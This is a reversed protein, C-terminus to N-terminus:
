SDILAELAEYSPITESGIVGGSDTKIATGATQANQILRRYHENKDHISLSTTTVHLEAINIYFHSKESVQNPTYSRELPNSASCYSCECQLAALGNGSDIIARINSKEEIFTFLKPAYYKMKYAPNRGSGGLKFHRAAKAWGTAFSASNLFPMISLDVRYFIVDDFVAELTETIHKLGELYAKDTTTAILTSANEIVVFVGDIPHKTMLQSLVVARADKDVVISYPIVIGGYLGSADLGNDVYYKRAEDWLKKTFKLYPGNAREINFYPLITKRSLM